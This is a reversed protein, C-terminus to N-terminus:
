CVCEKKKLVFDYKFFFYTNKWFCLNGIHEYQGQQSVYSLFIHNICRIFYPLSLIPKYDKVKFSFYSNDFLAMHWNNQNNLVASHSVAKKDLAAEGTVFFVTWSIYLAPCANLLSSCTRCPKGCERVLKRSTAWRYHLRQKGIHRGNLKCIMSYSKMSYNQCVNKFYFSSM